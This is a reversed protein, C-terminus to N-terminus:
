RNSVRAVWKTQMVGPRNPAILRAPYGHDIHLDGGNLQLALLTLPDRSHPPALTSARFLGGEQLSEVQVEDDDPVGMLDLLTSFRIGSWQANVSWGEVCTIPLRVTHQEMARLEDLTLVLRTPGDLVLQYAPDTATETVGATVAAQNIPVGQPGLTPDRQGFVVLPALGPVTQGATTLAATGATAAVVTLFGRRSLAGPETKDGTDAIDGADPGAVVADGAAAPSEVVDPSQRSLGRKIITLKSGIHVLIAGIAIWATWYHAVTFFFPFVAYWRAVNIVGTVLQFVGAGVLVLLSLRSLAHAITEVPPWEWLKPYVTWLKALLLPIATFGSIVHLGQTVRYLHVPRSPWYFWSGPNQIYHSILGTVFCVGFTIGVAMGLIAATRESRLPSQWADEKLPGQRLAAPPQPLPRHLIGTLGGSLSPGSRRVM